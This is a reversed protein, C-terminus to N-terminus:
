APDFTKEIFVNTKSNPKASNVKEWTLADCRAKGIRYSLRDKVTWCLLGGGNRRYRAFRPFLSYHVEVDLFDFEYLLSEPAHKIAETGVLFGLPLKPELKRAEFLINEWFSILLCDGVNPLANILPLARKAVAEENGGYSKLELVMPVNKDNLRFLEELTIPASGDPLLYSSQIERLDLEEIIGQKGTMRLLDSDHCILLEGDKTRHIDCEFPQGKEIAELFAARSNEPRSLDHLGRHAVGNDFALLREKIRPNM